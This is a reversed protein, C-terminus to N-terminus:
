FPLGSGPKMEGMGPLNAPMDMVTLNAPIEFHAPDQAVREINTLRSSFGEGSVELPINDDTLCARATQVLWITCTEGDIARSTGTDTAHFSDDRISPLRMAMGPMQSSWMIMDGEPMSRVSSMEMGMQTMDLRMKKLSASYRMKARVQTGTGDELVWDGSFDVKPYPQEAAAPLSLALAAVMMLISMPRIM